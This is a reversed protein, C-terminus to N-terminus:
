IEIFSFSTSYHFNVGFFTLPPTNNQGLFPCRYCIIFLHKSLCHLSHLSHACLHHGSTFTKRVFGTWNQFLRKGKNITLEVGFSTKFCFHNTWSIASLIWQPLTKLISDKLFSEVGVGVNNLFWVSYYNLYKLGIPISSLTQTRM